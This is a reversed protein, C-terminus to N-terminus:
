TLNKRSRCGHDMVHQMYAQRAHELAWLAVGIEKEFESDRTDGLKPTSVQSGQIDLLNRLARTLEAFLREQEACETQNSETTPKNTV